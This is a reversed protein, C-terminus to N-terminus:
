HELARIRQHVLISWFAGFPEEGAMELRRSMEGVVSSRTPLCESIKAGFERWESGWDHVSDRSGMGGGIAINRFLVRCGLAIVTM